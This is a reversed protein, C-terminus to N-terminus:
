KLLHLYKKPIVNRKILKTDKLSAICGCADIHDKSVYWAKDTAVVIGVRNGWVSGTLQVLDGKKIIM